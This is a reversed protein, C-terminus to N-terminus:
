GFDKDLVFSQGVGYNEFIVENIRAVASFERVCVGDGLLRIRDAAIAQAKRQTNAIVANFDCAKERVATRWCEDTTRNESLHEFSHSDRSRHKQLAFVKDIHDASQGGAFM